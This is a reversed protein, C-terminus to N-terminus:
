LKNPLYTDIQLEYYYFGNLYRGISQAVLSRTRCACGFSQAEGHQPWIEGVMCCSTEAYVQRCFRCAGVPPSQAPLTTPIHSFTRTKTPGQIRERM